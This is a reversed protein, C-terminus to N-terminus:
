HQITVHIFTQNFDLVPVDANFRQSMIRIDESKHSLSRVPGCRYPLGIDSLSTCDFSRNLAQSLLSPDGPIQLACVLLLDDRAIIDNSDLGCLCVHDIDRLIIGPVDPTIGIEIWVRHIRIWGIRVSSDTESCADEDSWPQIAIPIPKVRARIIVAPSSSAPNAATPLEDVRLITRVHIILKSINVDIV